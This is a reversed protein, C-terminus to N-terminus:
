VPKDCQESPHSQLLFKAKADTTLADKMETLADSTEKNKLLRTRLKLKFSTFMSFIM